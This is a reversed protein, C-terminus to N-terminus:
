QIWKKTILSLMRMGQAVHVLTAAKASALAACLVSNSCADGLRWCRQYVLLLHVM